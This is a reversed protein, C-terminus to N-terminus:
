KGEKKQASVGVTAIVTGDSNLNADFFEFKTEGRLIFARPYGEADLMRIFDYLERGFFNEPIESEKSTRRKFVTVDGKQQEPKPNKNVIETIMGFIIQSADRYLQRAPGESIDFPKKLYVPGADLEEVVRIASIETEYIGRVILNQLPSGGRGFPLDTMHFVICQFNEYIERSIKRSWHPFFVFIPKLCSLNEFTLDEKQSILFKEFGDPAQWKKFLAQNWSHIAVVVINKSM